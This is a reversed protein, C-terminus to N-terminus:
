VCLIKPLYNRLHPFFNMDIVKIRPHILFFFISILPTPQPFYFLLMGIFSAFSNDFVTYLHRCYLILNVNQFSSNLFCVQVEFSVCTFQQFYIKDWFIMEFSTRENFIKKKDYLFNHESCLFHTWIFSFGTWVAGASIFHYNVCVAVKDLFVCKRLTIKEVFIQLYFVWFCVFPCKWMIIWLAMEHRFKHSFVFLTCKCNMGKKCHQLPLLQTSCVFDSYFKTEFSIQFINRINM